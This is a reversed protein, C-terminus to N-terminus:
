LEVPEGDDEDATLVNQKMMATVEELNVLRALQMAQGRLECVEGWEKADLAAQRVFEDHQQRAEAVLHKWGKTAFVEELEEFYRLTEDLRGM